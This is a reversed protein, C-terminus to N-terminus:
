VKPTALLTAEQLLRAELINQIKQEIGPLTDPVGYKDKTAKSLAAIWQDVKNTSLYNNSRRALLISDQEEQSILQYRHTRQFVAQYMTLIQQHEIVGPNVANITGSMKEVLCAILFPLCDSLVTMSNPQSCVNKYSLIKTIFDRPHSANTIPMRIRASILHPFARMLTDTQGKVISYSSGFFNPFCDETFGQGGEITHKDDDYQFICGSGIYLTPTATGASASLTAQAILLPASLNCQLNEHLKGPAELYDITANGPGHTRGVSCVVRDPRHLELDDSVNEVSTVRQGKVVTDGAELLIKSICSGIWGDAGYVLFKM